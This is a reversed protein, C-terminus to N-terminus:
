SVLSVTDSFYSISIDETSNALTALDIWKVRITKNFVRLYELSKAADRIMMYGTCILSKGQLASFITEKTLQTETTSYYDIFIEGGNRPDIEIHHCYLKKDEGGGGVKTPDLMRRM